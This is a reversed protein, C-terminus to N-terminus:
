LSYPEFVENGFQSLSESRDLSKSLTVYCNLKLVLVSGPKRVGM